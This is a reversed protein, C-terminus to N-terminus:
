GERSSERLVDLVHRTAVEAHAAPYALSVGCPRNCHGCLWTHIRWRSDGEQPLLTAGFGAGVFSRIADNFNLQIRAQPFEGAAAFWETCLRHLHTSADNLILPQTALWAPSATDPIDWGAPLFAMVPDRRWPEVCVQRVPAQPLAVLGIELTGAALRAISERSTLIEVQVEIGPHRVHLLKLAGPLLHAVAGTSAGLRVRGALGQAQRQASLLAQEAELLLRRAREILFEGVPTPRVEGRKRSLLRAGVRTELEAVHLSVTPPALHLLDAARAFSGLEAVAVLTRLRDLSVERM